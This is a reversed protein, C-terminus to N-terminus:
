ITNIYCLGHMVFHKVYFCIIMFNIIFCYLCPFFLYIGLDFINWINERNFTVKSFGLVLKLKPQFKNTAGSHTKNTLWYQAYKM